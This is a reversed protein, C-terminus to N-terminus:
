NIISQNLLSMPCTRRFSIRPVIGFLTGLKGALQLQDLPSVLICVIDSNMISHSRAAQAFYSSIVILIEEM